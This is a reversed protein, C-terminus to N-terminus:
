VTRQDNFTERHTHISHLCVCLDGLHLSVQRKKSENKEEGVAAKSLLGSDSVSAPAHASIGLLIGTIVRLQEM